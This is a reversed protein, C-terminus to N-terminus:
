ICTLSLFNLWVNSNEAPHTDKKGDAEPIGQNAQPNSRSKM